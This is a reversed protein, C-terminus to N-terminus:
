QEKSDDATQHLRAAFARVSTAARETKWSEDLDAGSRENLLYALM